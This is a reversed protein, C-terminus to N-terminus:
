HKVTGAAELGPWPKRGTSQGRGKGANSLGNQNWKVDEKLTEKETVREPLTTNRSRQESQNEKKKKKKWKDVWENLWCVNTSANLQMESTTDSLPTSCHVFCHGLGGPAEMRPLLTLVSTYCIPHYHLWSSFSVHPILGSFMPLIRNLTELYINIVLHCKVLPKFLALFCAKLSRPSPILCLSFYTCLDQLLASFPM